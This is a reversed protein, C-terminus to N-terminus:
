DHLNSAARANSPSGLLDRYEQHKKLPELDPDSAIKSKWSPDITMGRNILEIAKDADDTRVLSTLSYICAVHILTRADTRQQLAATADEHAQDVNKLRAHLVGRSAIIETDTPRIRLIEDLREIAEETRDLYESLVYSINRLASYSTPNIRLAHLLDDHAEQPDARLREMARATWGVDDYPVGDIAARRDALAGQEDGLLRKLKSRQLLIRIDNPSVTLAVDLDNMALKLENQGQWALARNILGERLNPKLELVRGFDSAANGFEELELFCLGRSFYSYISDPQLAECRTFDYTAARLDNVKLNTNGRMFLSMYNDPMILIARNLDTMADAFRSDRYAEVGSLYLAFFGVEDAENAEERAIAASESQGMRDLLRARQLLVSRTSEALQESAHNLALADTLM